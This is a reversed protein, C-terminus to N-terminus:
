GVETLRLLERLRDVLPVRPLQEGVVARRREVPLLREGVDLDGAELLLQAAPAVPELEDREGAEVRQVGAHELEGAAIAVAPHAGVDLQLLALEGELGVTVGSRAVLTLDTRSVEVLHHLRHGLFRARERELARRLFRLEPALGERRLPARMRRAGGGRASGPARAAAPSACPAPPR